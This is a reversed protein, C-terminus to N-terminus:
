PSIGVRSRSKSAADSASSSTELSVMTLSSTPESSMASVTAAQVPM